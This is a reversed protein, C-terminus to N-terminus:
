KNRGGDLRSLVVSRRYFDIDGIRETWVYNEDILMELGPFLRKNGKVKLIYVPPESRLSNITEEHAGFHDVHYAVTYRGTPLRNALAYIYPEDGWIFIREDSLTHSVLYEAAEYTRSVRPDYWNWYEERDKVGVVWSVFNGYYSGVRYSWFGFGVWVVLLLGVGLGGVVREKKEKSAILIGVALAVPAAAQILYHPYPRESLLAGFLSLMLWVVVLKVSGSLKGRWVVTLGLGVLVLLGRVALGSHEFGVKPEGWSSLYSINQGLAAVIFLKGAGVLWYGVAILLVPLVWGLFVWGCRRLWEGFTSGTWKKLSLLWFVGLAGVDLVAPAKFLFGLSFLLGVGLLRWRSVKEGGSLGLWMGAIVPGIMFIEGNAIQAEWFPLTTLVTFVGLAVWVVLKNKFLLDVLKWFFVVTALHWWLLIFRMWFVTGALGAMWYILPPKNDHIDRYLVLGKRWAQGLTLYIGEDGYWYPEFLSPIRLLVVVALLLALNHHEHLWKRIGECCKKGRKGRRLRPSSPNGRRGRRIGRAKSMVAMVEM